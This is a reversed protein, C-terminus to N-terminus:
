SSSGRRYPGPGPVWPALPVPIGGPDPPIPNVAPQYPLTPNPPPASGETPLAVGSASSAVAQADPVRLGLDYFPWIAVNWYFADNTWSEAAEAGAGAIARSIVQFQVTSDSAGADVTWGAPEVLSGTDGGSAFMAAIVLGPDAATWAPTAPPGLVALGSDASPAPVVLDEVYAVGTLEYVTLWWGPVTPSDVRVTQAGASASPPMVAFIVTGPVTNVSSVYTAAPSVSQGDLLFDLDSPVACIGELVVVAVVVSGSAVAPSFTLNVFSSTYGYGSLLQAIGVM